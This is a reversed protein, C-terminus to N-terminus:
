RGNGAPGDVDPPQVVVVAGIAEFYALQADIVARVAEPRPFYDVLAARDLVWRVGAGPDLVQPGLQRQVGRLDGGSRAVGQLHLHDLHLRLIRQVEDYSLEATLEAPLARAVFELAEDQEFVNRPPEIRLRGVASGVAVLGIVVVAVLGVVAFLILM